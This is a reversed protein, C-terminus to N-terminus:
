FPLYIPGPRGVLGAVEAPSLARNYIRVEDIMGNMYETGSCNGIRLEQTPSMLLPTGTFTWTAGLVGDLYIDATGTDADIAYAVHHWDGISIVGGHAADIDLATNLWASGDGIDGHVYTSSVKFDFTFDANFRTGVIARLAALDKVNIWAAVTFSNLAFDESYAVNVYQPTTAASALDLAQGDYGAVFDPTGSITGDHGGVVDSADGDLPWYAVLDDTGPDVSEILTGDYPYLRIDDILLTGAAGAGEIGITVTTVNQVNLGSLDIVWPIWAAIKLDEASGPYSVKTSNIKIYLQGAANDPAGFFSLSLSRIGHLAWNQSASLTHEAESVTIGGSNDYSLPMSQAGSYTLTTEAFPSSLYGVTSGTDNVWGDLWADYILNDDDNYSEFDDVIISEAVSFTWVDGDWATPDEVENVEVVKWYYTQNLDLSADYSPESVTAVSATGDIVAQEDTALYVDHSAAERGPRWALTAEPSEGTVGSAPQPERAFAPIHLFRVESLGYQGLMGHGSNVTLRVFQAPVGGFDITTNATYTAAAAGQALVVDGLVIWDVGDTSYEVTVDKIGFGLMLEFQVNYNWVLMQHLKYVRDFEYQISLPDVGNATALWMDGSVVSHQDDANLGSGNITNEPGAAAESNGNSTAIINEIPYAFPEVTFSWVGGKFVTNDPAGNVEDVRWFYTKGFELRGPDFSAADLGSATPVTAAEVDEFSEGVYIDHTAAYVGSAWGLDADRPVDTAGDAPYPVSATQPSYEQNTLGYLHWSYNYIDQTLTIVLDEGAVATFQYDIYYADNANPFGVSTADDQNIKETSDSVPGAGDPDFVFTVFRTGGAGWQRTYIRTRYGQGATLGSLTWTTTGNVENNGNYYMDTLLNVLGGSVNHNANGAHDSLLGTAAARNFNLTGNAGANYADFQVGNILAGPTGQGFDLKHTYTNEPDIGCDADGTVKVYSITGADASTAVLGLIATTMAVLAWVILPRNKASM